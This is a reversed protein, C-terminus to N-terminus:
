PRQNAGRSLLLAVVDHRDHETAWLLAADDAAHIDAGRDLLLECIARHGFYAAGRLSYGDNSNVNAGRDLLLAVVDKHGAESAWRLAADSEGHVDVGADLLLECIDKRGIYASWRLPYDDFSSIDVGRGLLLTCLDKRGHMAAWYLAGALVPSAIDRDLCFSVTELSVDNTSKVLEELDPGQVDSAAVEKAPFTCPDVPPNSVKRLDDLLPSNLQMVTQEDIGRVVSWLEDLTTTQEVRALIRVLTNERLFADQEAATDFASMELINAYWGGWLATSPPPPSAM